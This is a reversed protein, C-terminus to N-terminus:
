IKRDLVPKAPNALEAFIEKIFNRSHDVLIKNKNNTEIIKKVLDAIALRLDYLNRYEKKYKDKISELFGRIGPNKIELSGEKIINQMLQATLNQNEDISNLIRGQNLLSEELESLNSKILAQQQMQLFELYSKLDNMNKTIISQLEQLKVKESKEPLENSNIEVSM